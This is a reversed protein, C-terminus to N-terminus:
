LVICTFGVVFTIVVKGADNFEMEKQVLIKAIGYCTLVIGILVLFIWRKMKSSSKLWHWVGKM